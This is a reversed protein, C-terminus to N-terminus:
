NNTEAALWPRALRALSARDEAGLKRRISRAHSRVTHPSLCLVTAIERDTRGAVLPSLVAREAVSLAALPDHPTLLTRLLRESVDTQGQECARCLADLATALPSPIPDNGSLLRQAQEARQGIGQLVGSLHALLDTPAAPAIAPSAAVGGLAARRVADEQERHLAMAVSGGLWTLAAIITADYGADDYSLVGMLGLLPEARPADPRVLPVVVTEKSARAEDGFSRGRNMMEGGDQGSWYAQRHRLVWATVSDQGYEAKEPEDYEARDYSYPFLMATEGPCFFGIYFSDVPAIQQCTRRLLHYLPYHSEGRLALLARDADHLLRLTDAPLAALDTMSEETVVPPVPAAVPHVVRRRAPLAFAFQASVHVRANWQGGCRGRGVPDIRRGAQRKRRIKEQM